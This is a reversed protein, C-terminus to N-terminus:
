PLSRFSDISHKNVPAGQTLWGSDQRLSEIFEYREQLLSAVGDTGNM